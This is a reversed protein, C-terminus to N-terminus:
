LASLGVAALPLITWSRQVRVLTIVLGALGAVALAGVLLQRAWITWPPDIRMALTDPVIGIGFVRRGADAAEIARCGEGALAHLARKRKGVDRHRALVVHRRAYGAPIRIMEFWPMTLHWRHWGM